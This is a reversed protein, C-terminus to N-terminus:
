ASASSKVAEYADLAAQRAERHDVMPLPYDSGLKVGADSLVKEPAEWPTHLHKDPLAKIEPVWRRVYDGAKDFKEGQTMPNFIRFYPAADAGSGAVWQWSCSNSALDADVLTDWFWNAGHHWHIRLHKCLFSAVIMRVRNHMHGTQWLERMGADVIPYGTMGKQWAKLEDPSDAWPFASFRKNFPKETIDPFFHLLQYSFDRWGLEAQFKEIDKTLKGEAALRAQSQAWIQRPSLEGFHIHPSLRSTGGVGPKDRNGAYGAVTDDLFDELRQRAGDEGPTWREDWAEAWNPDQPLLGLEDIELGAEHAFWRCDPTSQPPAVDRKLCARWFPSFVRYPKDENTLVSGPEHLLTGPYRKFSVDQAELERHLTQEQESHWPEYRRSCCVRTAGTEECLGRLVDLTKGQFFLLKGGASTIAKALAALSHHLWWRSAGGPAWPDDEDLIFVPLVRGDDSCAARFAPHDSLRLDQRFWLITPPRETM